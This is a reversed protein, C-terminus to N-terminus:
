AVAATPREAVGAREGAFAVVIAPEPAPALADIPQRVAPNGAQAVVLSAFMRAHAALAAANSAPGLSLGYRYRRRGAPARHRVEARLAGGAAAIHLTVVRGVALRAETVLAVGDMSLNTIEAPWAADDYGVGAPLSVALRYGGVRGIHRYARVGVAIFLSLILAAWGIAAGVAFRDEASWIGLMRGVGVPLSVAYCLTLALFPWLFASVQRESQAVKRTVKFRVPRPVVLTLTAVAFAFMKMLDFMQTGLARVRGRGLAVNAANMSAFFAGWALFVPLGGVLPVRGTLLVVPLVTLLALNRYADFYTATSGIYSLRQGLSLGRARWERRIVQMTGLAWRQRQTIFGHYDDPALGFAVPGAHYVIRWGRQHLRLSTHLDETVTETAVGGLGLLADRRLMSPAGCWFASNLHNKGPQIVEYFMTQEHWPDGATPHQFSDRNYFEQPGQVVAVRPDNFYGILEDIYNPAAIFDADIVCVFEGRTQHLAHNLNGAKAHVHEARQVYEAGFRACLEAVWERNGDDLVYTTHPYRVAIAAAITPALVSHPENYTPIYFDVAREGLATGRAPPRIDWVTLVHVLFTLYGHAEAGWLPVSLWWAHWNMTWGLRWILYAAGFAAGWLALAHALTERRRSQVHSAM